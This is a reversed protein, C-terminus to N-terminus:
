NDRTQVVNWPLLSQLFLLLPNGTLSLADDQFGNQINELPLHVAMQNMQEMQQPIPDDEPLMTVEDTYDLVISM